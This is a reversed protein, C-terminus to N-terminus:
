NWPHCTKPTPSEQCSKSGGKKGQSIHVTTPYNDITPLLQWCALCSKQICGALLWTNENTHPTGAKTSFGLRSRFRWKRSNNLYKMYTSSNSSHRKQKIDVLSVVRDIWTAARFASLVIVITFEHNPNTTQSELSIGFHCDRENYITMPGFNPAVLSVEVIPWITYHWTWWKSTWDNQVKAMGMPKWLIWHKTYKGVNPQNKHSIYNCIRFVIGYM